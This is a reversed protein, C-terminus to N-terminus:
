AHSGGTPRFQPLTGGELDQFTVEVPKGIRLADHPCDVINTLLRLGPQEELEVIVLSYPVQDALLPNFVHEVTTFSYVVGRGSVESPALKGSQCRPCIPQPWHIYYACDQCRLIELRHARAADWFFQTIDNPPLFVRQQAMAAM